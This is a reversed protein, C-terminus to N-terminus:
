FPQLLFYLNINYFSIYGLLYQEYYYNVLKLANFKYQGASLPM